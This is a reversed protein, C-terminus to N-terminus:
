IELKHLRVSLNLRDAPDLELKKVLAKAFVDISDYAISVKELGLLEKSALDEAVKEDVIKFRRKHAYIAGGYDANLIQYGPNDHDIASYVENITFQPYGLNDLCIVKIPQVPKNPKDSKEVVEEFRYKFIGRCEDGTITSKVNYLTDNGSLSSGPEESFVEYIENRNIGPYDYKDIYKVKKM